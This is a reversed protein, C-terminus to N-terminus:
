EAAKSLSVTSGTLNLSETQDEIHIEFEGAEIISEQDRGVFSLDDQTLTFTLTESEGPALDVKAFQKLRRAAPTVSAVLDSVYLQVVDKGRREGSNTVTVTVDVTAGAQMDSTSVRAPSVQMTEYDFSTYSLGDGFAFLPDAGEMGFDAGLRESPKYDYLAFGTSTAPYTYPLHGSPNVDGYIVEMLAQGGEPGPNYATLIADAGEHADGLTRPRGQILVLVVPTGTATIRRILTRQADPLALDRINGATEAYAGEGVAVVAVDSERAAAVAEDMRDSRVLTAGPVYQMQEEGVRARIAEMLTPRGEHFMEQSKGGGQWTYTWGNNLSQM